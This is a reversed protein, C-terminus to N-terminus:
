HAFCVLFYHLRLAGVAFTAGAFSADHLRKRDHWEEDEAACSLPKGLRLFDRLDRPALSQTALREFVYQLPSHLPHKENTLAAGCLTLLEGPLGAECAIQQNRESRLLSKLVECAYHQLELKLQM